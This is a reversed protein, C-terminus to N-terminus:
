RLDGSEGLCPLVVNGVGGGGRQLFLTLASCCFVVLVGISRTRALSPPEVADVVGQYFMGFVKSSDERSEVLAEPAVGPPHARAGGGSFDWSRESAGASFTLLVVVGIWRCFAELLTIVCEGLPEPAVTPVLLIPTGV